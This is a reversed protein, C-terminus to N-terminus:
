APLMLFFHHIALSATLFHVHFPCINQQSQVIHVYHILLWKLNLRKQMQSIEYTVNNSSPEASQMKIALNCRMKVIFFLIIIM